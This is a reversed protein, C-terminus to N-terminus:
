DAYARERRRNVLQAIVWVLTFVIVIAIIPGWTYWAWGLLLFLLAGGVCAAVIIGFMGLWVKTEMPAVRHRPEFPPMMGVPHSLAARM